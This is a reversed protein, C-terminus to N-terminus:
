RRGPRSRCRPPCRSRPDAPSGRCPHHRNTRSHPNTGQRAWGTPRSQHRCSRRCSRGPPPGRRSGVTSRGSRGPGSRIGPCRHHRSTPDPGSRWRTMRATTRPRHRRRMGGRRSATTLSPCRGRRHCSPPHPTPRTACRSPGPGTPPSRSCVPSSGEPIPTTSRPDSHSHPCRHPHSTSGPHRSSRSGTSTGSCRSRSRLRRGARRSGTSPGPCPRIRPCGPRSSARRRGRCGSATAQCRRLHIRRCCRSRSRPRM